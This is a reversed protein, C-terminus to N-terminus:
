STTIDPWQIASNHVCFLPDASSSFTLSFELFWLLCHGSSLVRGPRSSSSSPPQPSHFLTGSLLLPLPLVRCIPLHRAACQAGSRTRRFDSLSPPKSLSLSYPHHSHSRLSILHCVETSLFWASVLLLVGLIEAQTVPLASHSGLHSPSVPLPWSCPTILTPCPLSEMHMYTSLCLHLAYSQCTLLYAYILLGFIPDSPSAISERSPLKQWNFVLM